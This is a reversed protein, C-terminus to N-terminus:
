RQRRRLPLLSLLGVATLLFTSPEPIVAIRANGGSWRGLGGGGNNSPDALATTVAYTNLTRTVGPGDVYGPTGLNHTDNFPDVTFDSAGIRYSEGATLTLEDIDIYRFAGELVGGGAPVTVSALLAGGADWIGVEHSAALGDGDKDYVGLADITIPDDGVDFQFGINFPGNRDLVDGTSVTITGANAEVAFSVIFLLLLSFLTARTRIRPVTMM